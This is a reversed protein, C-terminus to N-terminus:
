MPTEDQEGYDESNTESSTSNKTGDSSGSGGVQGSTQYLHHSSLRGAATYDEKSWGAELPDAQNYCGTSRLELDHAVMSATSLLSSFLRSGKVYPFSADAPRIVCVFEEEQPPKHRHSKFDHAADAAPIAPKSSSADHLSNIPINCSQHGAASSLADVPSLTRVRKSPPGLDVAVPIESDDFTSRKILRSCRVYGAVQFGNADHYCVSQSSSMHTHSLMRLSATYSMFRFLVQVSSICSDQDIDRFKSKKNTSINRVEAVSELVTEVSELTLIQNIHNPEEDSDDPASSKMCNLASESIFKINGIIDICFTLEPQSDLIDALKQLRANEIKLDGM